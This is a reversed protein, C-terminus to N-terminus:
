QHEECVVRQQQSGIPVLCWVGCVCCRALIM